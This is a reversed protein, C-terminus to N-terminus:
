LNIHWEEDFMAENAQGYLVAPLYELIDLPLRTVFM